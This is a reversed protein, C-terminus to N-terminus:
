AAPAPKAAAALALDDATLGKYQQRLAIKTARHTIHGSRACCGLSGWTCRHCSLMLGDANFVIEIQVMM